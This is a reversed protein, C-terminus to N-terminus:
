QRSYSVLGAPYAFAAKQLERFCASNCGNNNGSYQAFNGLPVDGAFGKYQGEIKLVSNGGPTAHAQVTLSPNYHNPVMKPSLALTMFQTDLKDVTYGQSVFVTALKRLATAASDPTQVLVVNDKLAPRPATQGVAAFCVSLACLLLVTKMGALYDACTPLSM